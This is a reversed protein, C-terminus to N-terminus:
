PQPVFEPISCRILTKKGDEWTARCIEKEPVHQDPSYSIEGTAGQYSQTEQLADRIATPDNSGARKAADVFLMVQDWGIALYAESPPTGGEEEEYIDLVRQLESGPTAFAHTTFTVGDAASEGAAEPFSPDDNGDAGLFPTDLGAARLQKVFVPSDPVFMATYISDTEDAVEKIRAIQPSFDQVGSKFFGEGTITGGCLEEFAEAFYLPTTDLYEIDSSRLLYASAYGRDCAEEAMAAAQANDGFLSLFMFDGVADPVNPGTSCSSIAPVGQEQAITGAAIARSNECAVVLGQAGEDILEQTTQASLAADTKNDRVLLEIQQGDLGGSKNVQDVALQMGALIPEGYAAYDGTQAVSAGLVLDESGDSNSNESDGGCAALALAPAALLLVTFRWVRISRSNLVSPERAGGSRRQIKPCVRALSM